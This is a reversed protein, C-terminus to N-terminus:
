PVVVEGRRTQTTVFWGAEMVSPLTQTGILGKVSGAACQAATGASMHNHTCVTVHRDKQGSLRFWWRAQFRPDSKKKTM